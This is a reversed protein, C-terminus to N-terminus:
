RENENEIELEFNEADKFNDFYAAQLLGENDWYQVVVHWPLGDHAGQSFTEKHKM